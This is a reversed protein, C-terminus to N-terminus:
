EYLIPLPVGSDRTGGVGCESCGSMGLGWVLLSTVRAGECERLRCVHLGFLLVRMVTVADVHPVLAVKYVSWSRGCSQLCWM